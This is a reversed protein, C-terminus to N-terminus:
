LMRATRKKRERGTLPLARMRKIRATKILGWALVPHVEQQMVAPRMKAAATRTIRMIRRAAKQEPRKPAPMKMGSEKDTVHGAAGAETGGPEDDDLGGIGAMVAQEDLESLMSQSADKELLATFVPKEIIDKELRNPLRGQSWTYATLSGWGALLLFLMPCKKFWRWLKMKKM